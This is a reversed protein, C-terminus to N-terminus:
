GSHEAIIRNTTIESAILTMPVGVGPHTYQGTYYLNRVRKSRHAPRFFATQRLTHALGLATGRYSHYDESFDRHTFIRKVAVDTHLSERTLMEIHEIVREAYRERLEDTDDLGPAVPVLIFVNESGDPASRTDTKSACSVYYCPNEPWAPSDFMLRFHEDWDPRFYLNHHVLSQLKRKIGLYIIFMSPALVRKEWYPEPYSQHLPDLLRTETHHYDAGVVFVDAPLDGDVTHVRAAREGDVDIKTVERNRLIRVGKSEAIKALSTIVNGIGGEPYWVGLNLDVHSMISYLGPANKPSNGLFVMAYELIKKARHDQFYKGVFSDLSGFVNLRSGEILLRRNFFQFISRYERYLFDRMATDYKYRAQELYADLKRGGDMEFGDFVERTREIDGTIDVAEDPAFFVRYYPDLRELRYYEERAAGVQEFFRDFVEPMLYWSPGMDFTFGNQKWVRARGGIEANKEVLTVEWGNHALLCAASLGGFGAGIVVATRKM